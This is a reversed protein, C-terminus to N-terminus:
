RTFQKGNMCEKLKDMERNLFKELLRSATSLEELSPIHWHMQLDKVEGLKGWDQLSLRTQSEADFHSM